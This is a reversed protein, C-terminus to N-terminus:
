LGSVAAMDPGARALRLAVTWVDAWDCAGCACAWITFSQDRLVSPPVHAYAAHMTVEAAELDSLRSDVIVRCADGYWVTVAVLPYALAERLICEGFQRRGISVVRASALEAREGV